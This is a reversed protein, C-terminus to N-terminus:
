SRLAHGLAPRALELFRRFPNALRMQEPHTERVPTSSTGPRSWPSTGTSSTGDQNANVQIARGRM